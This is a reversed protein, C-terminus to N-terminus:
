HNLWLTQLYKYSAVRRTEVLKKRNALRCIKLCLDEMKYRSCTWQMAELGEWVLHSDKIHRLCVKYLEQTGEISSKSSNGAMKGITRLMRVINKRNREKQVAVILSHYAKKFTTRNQKM